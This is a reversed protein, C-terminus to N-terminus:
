GPAVFPAIAGDRRPRSMRHEVPFVRPDPHAIAEDGRDLPRLPPLARDEDQHSSPHSPGTVALDPCGTNWPFCAPTPIRSPRTAATSLDCRRRPETKM